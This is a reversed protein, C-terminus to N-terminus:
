STTDTIVRVFKYLGFETLLLCLEHGASAVCSEVLLYFGSGIWYTGLFCTLCFGKWFDVCFCRHSPLHCIFCVFGVEFERLYGHRSSMEAFTHLYLLGSLHCCPLQEVRSTESSASHCRGTCTFVSSPFFSSNNRLFLSVSDTSM